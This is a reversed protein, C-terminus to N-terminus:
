FIGVLRVMVRPAICVVAIIVPSLSLKHTGPSQFAKKAEASINQDINEYQGPQQAEDKLHGVGENEASYQGGSAEHQEETGHVIGVKGIPESLFRGCLHRHGAM